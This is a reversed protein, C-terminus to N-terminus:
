KLDKYIRTWRLVKFKDKEKIEYDASPITAACLHQKEAEWHGKGTKSLHYRCVCFTKRIEKEESFFDLELEYEVECLVMESSFLSESTPKVNPKTTKWM